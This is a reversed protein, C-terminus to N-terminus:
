APKRLYHRNLEEKTTKPVFRREPSPRFGKTRVTTSTHTQKGPNDGGGSAAKGYDAALPRLKGDLGGAYTLAAERLEPSHLTTAAWNGDNIREAPWWSVEGLGNPLSGGDGLEVIEQHLDAAEGENAPFRNVVVVRTAAEAGDHSPRKRVLVVLAEDIVTDQSMNRNNAQHSVLITHVRYGKALALREERGSSSTLAITPCVFAMVGGDALCADALAVFMPHLSNRVDFGAMHGEGLLGYLADMRERLRAKDEKAFKEGMKSRNSYPPNMLVLRAGDVLEAADEVKRGLEWVDDGGLAERFDMASSPPVIQEAAFLEISGGRVQGNPQPGYPMQCLNMRRYRISSTSGTLQAAALQLSIPNVDLGVLCDEVLRRQLKAAEDADDCQRAKIESMAAALLTGSGCALDVIRNARGWRVDDGCVDIALKALLTAASPRTFFAGDSSQDAMFQNYVKGAHDTGMDAYISAIETASEAVSRLAEGLGATKGTQHLMQVIDSAPGIIAEFDWGRIRAWENQIASVPDPSATIDDLPRVGELWGGDAIRQHLMAANLLMLGAVNTSDGKEKSALRDLGFHADLDRQLGDRRLYDAARRVKDILVNADREVKTAGIGSKALLNMRISDAYAIFHPNNFFSEQKPKVNDDPLDQGDKGPKRNITNSINNRMAQNRKEAPLKKDNIKPDIRNLRMEPKTQGPRVQATVLRRPTLNHKDLDGTGRIRAAGVDEIGADGKALRRAIDNAEKAPGKHGFKRVKDEGPCKVALLSQTPGTPKVNDDPLDLGDKGPKRNITNSINNRMAQNRKEAPLKKDNIKPDIRNLRMEPKTQGPRVQATVLRRPTLNHKDLDGTGRIRAAGVDEIGADGKALRRAIDNAEKAPGKHGFKRVKDEGPCKVALLSQTPGSQPVALSLKQPLEDEIRKDHARLARLVQGLEQWGDEPQSTALWEEVPTNPPIRIPVIIYGHRKGPAKRMARGVAQVVDISSKRPELFAVASLSPSDTGEGFIGVNCVAHPRQPTGAALNAKANKRRTLPSSADIHEITCEVFEKSAGERDLRRKLWEATSPDALSEQMAKSNAVTNLFAICSEIAPPKASSEVAQAMALSLALGKQLDPVGLKPKRGKHKRYARGVENALKNAQELTDEGNDAIAIIRYDSLWGNRVAEAFSIRKLLVGFTSQDDMDRVLLDRETAQQKSYADYIRPTATQYLRFNAPFRKSDHCITFNRLAEGVGSAPRKIGATRHAEDCVLVQLRTETEQLAAAIRHASQYTGFIVNLGSNDCAAKLWEGIEGPDTTVRGKIASAPMLGSDDAPDPSNAHREEAKVPDGASRDSCVALANIAGDHNRMYEARIQAVLAISPCLVASVDGFGTALREVIRLSIRTKGTGCPLILRGRAEVKIGDADQAQNDRLERVCAEVVEAQMADKGQVGDPADEQSEPEPRLAERETVLCELLSDSKLPRDTIRSLERQAEKNPGADRNVILWRESWDTPTSATVFKALESYAIGGGGGGARSKCQIAVLAGDHRKAVVDIGFEKLGYGFAEREPWEQWIWASAIGWERILPATEATLRELWEGGEPASEVTNIAEEILSLREAQSHM